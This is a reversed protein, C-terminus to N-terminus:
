AWFAATTDPDYNLVWSECIQDGQFRFVHAYQGDLTKDGRSATSRALVVVSRDGETIEDVTVRFTGDSEHHLRGFEALVADVGQFEGAGQGPSHWAIDSTFLSRLTDMDGSQFAQYGREVLASRTGQEISSM